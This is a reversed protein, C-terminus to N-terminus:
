EARIGLSTMNTVDTAVGVLALSHRGKRQKANHTWLYSLFTSKKPLGLHIPRIDSITLLYSFSFCSSHEEPERHLCLLLRTILFSTLLRIFLSENEFYFDCCCVNARQCFDLGSGLHFYLLLSKKLFIIAEIQLEWGIKTYWMWFVLSFPFLELWNGASSQLKVRLARCWFLLPRFM